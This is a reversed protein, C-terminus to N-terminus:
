ILAALASAFWDLFPVDHPKVLQCASMEVVMLPGCRSECSCFSGSSERCSQAVQCCTDNSGLEEEARPPLPLGVIIELPKPATDYYLSGLPKQPRKTNLDFVSVWMSNTWTVHLYRSHSFSPHHHGISLTKTHIDDTALQVFNNQRYVPQVYTLHRLCFIYRRAEICYIIKATIFNSKQRVFSRGHHSWLCGSPMACQSLRHRRPNSGSNVVTGPVASSANPM